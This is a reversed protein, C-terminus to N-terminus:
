IELQVENHGDCHPCYKVFYIEWANADIELDDTTVEAQIQKGCCDCKFTTTIVLVKAM